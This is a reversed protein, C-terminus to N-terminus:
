GLLLIAPKSLPRRASLQRGGLLDGVGCLGGALLDGVLDPPLPSRMNEPLM